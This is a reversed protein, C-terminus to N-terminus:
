LSCIQGTVRGKLIDLNWLVMRKSFFVVYSVFVVTVLFIIVKVAIKTCNKNGMHGAM